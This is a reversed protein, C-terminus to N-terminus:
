LSFVYGSNAFLLAEPFVTRSEPDEDFIWLRGDRWAGPVLLCIRKGNIAVQRALSVDHGGLEHAYLIEFDALFLALTGPAEIRNTVLDRFADSLISRQQQDRRRDALTGAQEYKGLAKLHGFLDRNFSIYEVRGHTTNFGGRATEEQVRKQFPRLRDYPGFVCYVQRDHTERMFLRSLERMIKEPSLTRPEGAM